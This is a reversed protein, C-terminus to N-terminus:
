GRLLSRHISLVKYYSAGQRYPDSVARATGARRVTCATTGCVARWDTSEEDPDARWSGLQIWPSCDRSRSSNIPGASIIKEVFDWARDSRRSECSRGCGDMHSFTMPHAHKFYNFWGRLMPNLEAIIKALSDGRTRKTRMRIRDRMSKGSKCRVWRRGVAFHYGLFEFGQRQQRCDGVHPKEANLSLGNDEVWAKVEACRISRETGSVRVDLPGVCRLRKNKLRPKCM